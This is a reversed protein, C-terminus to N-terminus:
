SNSRSSSPYYIMNRLVSYMALLLLLPLIMTQLFFVVILHIVHETANDLVTKLHEIYPRPDLATISKKFKDLVGDNERPTATEPTLQKVTQTTAGLVAQSQQYDNQLFKQFIADSGVTILPVAFRVMLMLIFLNNLWRPLHDKYFYVFGWALLVGTLILKVYEYQGMMLLAKQIGFAVSAMLMFNSFMEVLDNVTDLVEGISLTVGAGVSLHVETGQALSIAANLARAAAFTVLARKMGADVQEMAPTDFKPIWAAIALLLLLILVAIKKAVVVNM